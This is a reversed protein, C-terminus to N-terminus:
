CIKPKNSYLPTLWPLGIDGNDVIVDVNRAYHVMLSVPITFRALGPIGVRVIKIGDIVERSLLSDKATSIITIDYRHTLRKFIEHIYLPAGGGDTHKIDRHSLIAVTIM